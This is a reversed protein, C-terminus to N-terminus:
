FGEDDKYQRGGGTNKSIWKESMTLLDTGWVTLTITTYTEDILIVDRCEVNHGDKSTFQRRPQVQIKLLM